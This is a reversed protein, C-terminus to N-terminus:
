TPWTRRRAPPPWCRGPSPSPTRGTASRRWGPPARSSRTSSTPSSGRELGTRRPTSGCCRTAPRSGTARAAGAAGRDRRRPPAARGAPQEGGRHAGVLPHGGLHQGAGGLLRLRRLAGRARPLGGRAWARDLGPRRSRPPWWVGGAVKPALATERHNAVMKAMVEQTPGFAQRRGDLKLLLDCELVADPRHAIIVVAGGAAKMARVTRNVLHRPEAADLNSNPEDLVLIVPDGYMARLRCLGASRGAWLRGGVASVPTDYGEPQRLADMASRRPGNRRRSSGRPNTAPALRAINEAITGDFLTM